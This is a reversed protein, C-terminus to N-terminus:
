PKRFYRVYFDGADPLATEDIFYILGYIDMIDKTIPTPTLLIKYSGETAAKLASATKNEGTHAKNLRDAEDFIVIDWLQKQIYAAKEVAFDYATIVLADQAFPNEEGCRLLEDFIEACDILIYPLNFSAEMKTTWQRVLNAPLVMLQRDQGEFWKQTAILLAEFTKGLSGEDCLICGKLYPSRLAFQAAAIQYPYIEINSSAFAPLLREDGAYQELTRATIYAHFPTKQM